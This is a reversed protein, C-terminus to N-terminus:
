CPMFCVSPGSRASLLSQFFNALVENQSQGGPSAVGPSALPPSFASAPSAVGNPSLPGPRAAPADKRSLRALRAAPDEADRDLASAVGPLSLSSSGMPGVVGPTPSFTPSVSQASASSPAAVQAAVANRAVHGRADKGVDRQLREFHARLFDQEDQAEVLAGAGRAPQPTLRDVALAVCGISRAPISSRLDISPSQARDM